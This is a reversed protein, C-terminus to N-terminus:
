CHWASASILNRDKWGLLMAGDKEVLTYHESYCMLLSRIVSNVYSSLPCQRFGAMTLRSKWKGFLEHREVREKGECAIINVIDRALCHQEVNIREKSDRPLTVDISEFIALYYDLTEIFRNFFPTTNTNSEQEVLTTVKPSLSRVLRLLGDRPNSVHVSEDATHHLQLPFNVALAEGPRIDLMERTVNPAFVPVGHFEVPIGFKESMLALRKGVVELGDGRAYKSVPDDIGTIRVHPAGGPRAALAQLLTMWQTGQAIQFDIIHIHDENRCAQAIAGNAAMYGFKLYPCIEFLLQMYTLLEEGEPERCRLAHYISNGSAQMRAVLGEVMYAGLRQIPEGNISVADKAKGVLQDFDKTNNESLAKACAILLQKLNNPPFDQLTAEEMLKQRKEVHVVESSQMNATAYSPQTQTYQSVHNENSWSRSRQGSAMPRSSEALTNPTNVQDDDPAMLATELELLAHQIKQNSSMTQLLSNRDSYLPFSDLTSVSRYMYHNTELSSNCSPSVGSLIEGPSYQEQGDSLASLTDSDFYTSFPSNPSNGTDYKLSGLLSPVTPLSSMYPLEFSFLQQSDMSFSSPM